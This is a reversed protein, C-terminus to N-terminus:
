RLSWISKSEKEKSFPTVGIYRTPKKSSFYGNSYKGYQSYSSLRGDKVCQEAATKDLTAHLFVDKEDLLVYIMKRATRVQLLEKFKAVSKTLATNKTRLRNLEEQSNVLITEIEKVNMKELHPLVRLLYHVLSIVNNINRTMTQKRAIASTDDLLKEIKKEESTMKNKEMFLLHKVM